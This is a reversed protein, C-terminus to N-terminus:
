RLYESTTPPLTAAEMPLDMLMAYGCKMTGPTAFEYLHSLRLIAQVAGHCNEFNKIQNCWFFQFNYLVSCEFSGFILIM